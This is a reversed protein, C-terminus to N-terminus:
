LTSKDKKWWSGMRDEQSFNLSSEPEDLRELHEKPRCLQVLKGNHKRCCRGDDSIMLLTKFILSIQYRHILLKESEIM